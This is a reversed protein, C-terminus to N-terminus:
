MPSIDLLETEEDFELEQSDIKFYEGDNVTFFVINIPDFLENFDLKAKEFSKEERRSTKIFELPKLKDVENTIKNYRGKVEIYDLESVSQPIVLQYSESTFEKGNYGFIYRSSGLKKILQVTISDPILKEDFYYVISSLDSPVFILRINNENKLLYDSAEVYNDYYEIEKVTDEKGILQTEIIETSKDLDNLGNIYLPYFDKSNENYFGIVTTGEVFKVSSKLKFNNTLYYQDSENKYDLYVLITNDPVRCLKYVIKTFEELIATYNIYKFNNMIDIKIDIKQGSTVMNEKVLISILENKNLTNLGRFYRSDKKFAMRQVKFQKSDSNRVVKYESIPTIKKPVEMVTVKTYDSDGPLIVEAEAGVKTSGPIIVGSLIDKDPFIGYKEQEEQTFGSKLKSIFELKARGTLKECCPYYLQQDKGNYNVRVDGGRYKDAIGIAPAYNESACNGSWSYPRPQLEVGAQTKRCVETGTRQSQSKPPVLGTVTTDQTEHMSYILPETSIFTKETLSNTAFIDIFFTRIIDLIDLTDEINLQTTSVSFQFVGYKTIFLSINIGDIDIIYVKNDITETLIVPKSKSVITADYDDIELFNEGNVINIYSNSSKPEIIEELKDFQIEQSKRNEKGFMYFQCHFLYFTGEVEKYDRVRTLGNKVLLKNFNEINISQTENIRNMLTNIFEKRESEVQPINKIDISGDKYIRINTTKDGYSYYISVINSFRITLTKPAQPDKGKIKVVDDYIIESIADDPIKIITKGDKKDKEIDNEFYKKLIKLRNGKKYEKIDNELPGSYDTNKLLDKFGKFTLVLSRKNPNPCNVLHFDPGYQLCFTCMFNNPIPGIPPRNILKEISGKGIKESYELKDFQGELSFKTALKELDIVSEKIKDPFKNIYYDVSTCKIETSEM